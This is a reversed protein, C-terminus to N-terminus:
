RTFIYLTLLLLIRWLQGTFTPNTWLLFTAYCEVSRPSGLWGTSKVLFPFNWNYWCIRPRQLYPPTATTWPPEGGKFVIPKPRLRQGASHAFFVSLLTMVHISFCRSHGFINFSSRSFKAVHPYKSFFQLRCKRYTSKYMLDGVLFSCTRSWNFAVFLQM